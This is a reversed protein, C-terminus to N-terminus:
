RSRQIAWPVTTCRSPIEGAQKRWDRTLAVSVVLGQMCVPGVCSQHLLSRSTSQNDLRGINKLFYVQFMVLRRSVLTHIFADDIMLASETNRQRTDITALHPADQLIWRANRVFLEGLFQEAADKWSARSLTLHVLWEGLDPTHAKSRFLPSSVFGNVAENAM